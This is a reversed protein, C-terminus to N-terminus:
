RATRRGGHSTRRAMRFTRAASSSTGTIMTALQEGGDTDAPLKSTQHRAHMSTFPLICLPPLLWSSPFSLWTCLALSVSFQPLSVNADCAEGVMNTLSGTMTWDDTNINVNDASALFDSRPIGDDAM